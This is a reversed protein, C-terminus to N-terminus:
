QCTARSVMLDKNTLLSSSQFRRVYSHAIIMWLDWVRGDQCLHCYTRVSTSVCHATSGEELHDSSSMKRCQECYYFVNTKNVPVKKHGMPLKTADQLHSDISIGVLNKCVNGTDREKVNDKFIFRVRRYKNLLLHGLICKSCKTNAFHYWCLKVNWLLNKLNAHLSM